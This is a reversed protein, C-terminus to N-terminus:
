VLNHVAFYAERATKKQLHEPSQVLLQRLPLVEGRYVPEDGVGFVGLNAEGGRGGWAPVRQEERQGGGGGWM